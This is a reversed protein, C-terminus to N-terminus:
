GDQVILEGPVSAGSTDDPGRVSDHTSTIGKRADTTQRTARRVSELICSLVHV